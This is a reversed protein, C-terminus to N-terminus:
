SLSALLLEKDADLGSLKVTCISNKLSSSGPSAVKVKMYNPTYGLYAVSSGSSNVESELLVSHRQGIGSLMNRKKMDRAIDALERARSKKIASSVQGPLGAAHTGERPSYSFIHVHSFQCSEIFERSEQWEAETEGPFGVIVDSSAKFGAVNDRLNELLLRFDTSKCRRAMRKLVTDSGSQLPLHLHPMFRSNEFLTPFDEGLDWPEVSGLRLRPIDTHQLVQQVLQFLSSNIDSGYGGIHVGTLVVEKIGQEHLRNVEEIIEGTTKSKEEGRARTVICFTCSYRCGDQVKVFARTRGRLFIPSEQPEMALKPMSSEAIRETVIEVLQDKSSNPILLDIGEIETEIGPELSAYCGSVVLKAAPNVRHYKRIQQRSKKVAERTVACTNVVLVDAEEPRTSIAHGLQLFKEGWNELEAENLRCGLTTLAVRM